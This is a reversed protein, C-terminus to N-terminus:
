FISNPLSQRMKAYRNPFRTVVVPIRGLGSVAALNTLAAFDIMLYLLPCDVGDFLEM